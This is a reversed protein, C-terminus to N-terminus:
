ATGSPIPSPRCGGGPRPVIGTEEETERVAARLPHEGRDAKGKPFSWDDYRPRHILAVEPGDRWLLAGAARIVGPGPDAM